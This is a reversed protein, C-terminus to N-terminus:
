LAQRAGQRDATHHLAHSFVDAMSKEIEAGGALRLMNYGNRALAEETVGPEVDRIEVSLWRVPVKAM